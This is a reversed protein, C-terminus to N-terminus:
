KEAVILRFGMANVPSPVSSLSKFGGGECFYRRHRETPVVTGLADGPTEGDKMMSCPLCIHCSLGSYIGCSPMALQETVNDTEAAMLEILFCTGRPKIAVGARRAAAAAVNMDHFCDLFCIGDFQGPSGFDTASKVEFFVNALGSEAKKKNAVEISPAYFDYGVIKARPFARALIIASAGYGCGVDALTGGMELKARLSPPVCDVLHNDYVPKFFRCTGSYLREDHEGWGIGEGTKFIEAIKGRNGIIAPIIFSLALGSPDSVVEKVDPPLYFTEDKASYAVVDNSAMALCWEKVYRPNCGAAKALGDSTMAGGKLFADFLGCEDGVGILNFNLSDQAKSALVDAFSPKKQVAKQTGLVLGVGALVGAGCGVVGCLAM